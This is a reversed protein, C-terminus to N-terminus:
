DGGLVALFATVIDPDFQKPSGRLLESIADASSRHSRYHRDQTMADYADAVAIIRSAFPIAPGALKLPYGAGGYWEHSAHVIPAAGALTDTSKLIETGAQVHRQMIIVEGDTLRSPKTLIAEPMVAKGADHLKAGIELLDCAAQPLNLGRAISLAYRAVRNSHEVTEPVHDLMIATLADLESVGTTRARLMACIENTRDRLEFALKANWRREELTEKRWQRGRDVALVFREREFPKILFDAIGRAARAGNQSEGDLVDIHGTAIVVATQPHDRQLRTALWLGDHGPMMVDIIAMDCHYTRLAALAEEASGVGQSELGLGAAWRAMIDRVAPEDDVILVSNM